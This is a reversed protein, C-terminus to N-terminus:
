QKQGIVDYTNGGTHKLACTSYPFGSNRRDNVTVGAGGVWTVVGVGYVDFGFANAAGPHVTVTGAVAASFSGGDDADTTTKTAGLATGATVTTKPQAADAKTGQTSTAFATSAQTAATGLGTVQAVPITTGVPLVGPQLASAALTGQAATAAGINALTIDGSGLVSVGGITKINTGSALTAQKGSLGPVTPATATGGLDGALQIVGPTSVTANTAATGTASLTGDGAVALGSGAKVGGLVSTTAIPLTQLATDAKALSTQVSTGLDSLAIGTSAAAKAVKYDNATATPMASITDTSVVSAPSANGNNKVGAGFAVTTGGSHCLVIFSPMPSLGSPITLTLGATGRADIISGNDAATANRSGSLTTITATAPAAADKVAKLQAADVVRGATGATVASADALQVVGAAATTAATAATGTATLTGDAAVALGSGAKVGGLVSATAVPVAQLATDAKGLSTQVTTSLSSAAINTGASVTIAVNGTADPLAGNVSKVNGALRSDNGQAATGATTGFVMSQLASDAKAISTQVSSALATLPINTVATADAKNSLTTSLLAVDSITIALVSKASAQTTAQVLSRGVAGSDTIGNSTVSGAAVAVVVNGASDPTVGNVSQVSTGGKSLDAQVSASLKTAPIGTAPPTYASAASSAAAAAAQEAVSLRSEIGFAQRFELQQATTPPQGNITVPM